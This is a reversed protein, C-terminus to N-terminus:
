LTMTTVRVPGSWGCPLGCTGIAEATSPGDAYTTIALSAEASYGCHPCIGFYNLIERNYRQVTFLQKDPQM